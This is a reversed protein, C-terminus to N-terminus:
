SQTVSKRHKAEEEKKIELVRAYAAMFAETIIARIAGKDFVHLARATIGGPTIVQKQLESPPTGNKRLCLEATGKLVSLTARESLDDPLGLTVMARTFASILEIVLAPGSGVGIIAVDLWSEKDCPLADGWSKMVKLALTRCASNLKASGFWFTTAHGIEAIINTSCRVVNDTGLQSGIEALSIGTMISMVPQDPLLKGKLETAVAPFSQPKVALIVVDAESLGKVNDNLIRCGPLARKLKAVREKRAKSLCVGEPRCIGVLTMVRALIEAMKGPGIIRVKLSSKKM